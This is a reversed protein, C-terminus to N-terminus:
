FGQESLADALSSPGSSSQREIDSGASSVKHRNRDVIGGIVYVENESLTSLEEDADASLYVIKHTEPSITSPLIPGELAKTLNSPGAAETQVDDKETNQTLDGSLAPEVAKTANFAQTVEGLGQERYYSRTWRDWGRGQMKEWLRPSATPGFSTHLITTFPRAATRNASYVFGLQSAM